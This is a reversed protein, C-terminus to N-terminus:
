VPQPPQAKAQGVQYPMWSVYPESGDHVDPGQKHDYEDGQRLKVSTLTLQQGNHDCYAVNVLHDSWVYTIHTDFPQTNDIKTGRLNWGWVVRGVTPKIM